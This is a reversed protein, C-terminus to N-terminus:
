MSIMGLLKGRKQYEYAYLEKALIDEVFLDHCPQSLM